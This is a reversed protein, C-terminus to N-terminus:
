TTGSGGDRPRPARHRLEMEDPAANGPSLSDLQGMSGTTPAAPANVHHVYVLPVHIMLAVAGVVANVVHAQAAPSLSTNGVAVTAAMASNIITQFASTRMSNTRLFQNAVQEGTPWRASVNVRLGETEDRPLARVAADPDRGNAVAENRASQITQRVGFTRLLGPRLTDDQIEPIANVIGRVVDHALYPQLAQLASEARQGLTSTSTDTALQDAFWATV